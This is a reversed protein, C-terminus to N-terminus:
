FLDFMKEILKIAIYYHLERIPHNLKNSLLETTNVGNELMKQWVPYLDCVKVENEQCIRKASEFYKELMREKQLYSFDRALKILLEDKLHPSVSSSFDNQTLFIIESGAARLAKFIERLSNEYVPLGEIGACSDNLGFSVICLDPVFRLVDRGLRKLANQASDGSIGSNIINIQACPYLINLIEKLRTGYSSKADFVTRVAGEGDVYCEFCGQTVSDGLLAITIPEAGYIDANKLALKKIIEM